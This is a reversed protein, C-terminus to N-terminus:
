YSMSTVGEYSLELPYAFYSYDYVDKANIGTTVFKCDQSYKLDFSAFCNRSEIIHDGTSNQANLFQSFRKPYSFPATLMNGKAERVRKEYEEKSLKKNEFYYQKNRLGVSAFCNSCNVCDELFASDRCGVCERSYLLNSCNVCDIVEYCFECNYSYLGDFVNKSNWVIKGYYCDENRVCGFVLYCNKSDGAINIYDSNICRKCFLGFRPVKQMLSAFQEFFPKSFDYEQGYGLPNWKDSWWCEQCYVPFPAEQPYMAIINKKCLDCQRQYLTRENRWALRRQLRCEPCFTPPPVVLKKYFTFDDAEITFESKCNQCTRTEKQM